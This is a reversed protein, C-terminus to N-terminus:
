FRDTESTPRKPRPLRRITEAVERSFDGLAHSMAEVVAAQESGAVNAHHSGERVILAEKTYPALVAWRVKLM